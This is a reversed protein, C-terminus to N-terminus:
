IYYHSSNQIIYAEDEKTGKIEKSVVMITNSLVTDYHKMSVKAEGM